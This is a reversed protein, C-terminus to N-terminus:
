HPFPTVPTGAVGPKYVFLNGAQPDDGRGEPFAMAASASWLASEHLGDKTAVVSQAQM